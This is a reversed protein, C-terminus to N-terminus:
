PHHYATRFFHFHYTPSPYPTSLSSELLSVLEIEGSALKTLYQDRPYESLVRDVIFHGPLHEYDDKNQIKPIDIVFGTHLRSAGGSLSDEELDLGPEDQEGGDTQPHDIDSEGSDVPQIEEPQSDEQGCDSGSQAGNTPKGHQQAKSAVPPQGLWASLDTTDM